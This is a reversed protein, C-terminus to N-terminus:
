KVKIRLISRLKEIGSKELERIKDPTWNRDKNETIINKRTEGMIYRLFIVLGEEEDLQKMSEIVTDRDLFYEPNEYEQNEAKRFVAQDSMSVTKLPKKKYLIKITSDRAVLYALASSNVRDGAELLALYASQKLDERTEESEHYAFRNVVQQVIEPYLEM